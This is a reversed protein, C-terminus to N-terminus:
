SSGHPVRSPSDSARVDLAVREFPIGVLGYRLKTSQVNILVADHLWHHQIHVAPDGDAISVTMSYDGNPLMPLTFSFTAELVDGANAAHAVGEVFTNQGFLAQGLRDKVLFGIIPSALANHAKANITLRVREGGRFASLAEGAPGTLSVSTIQADGTSWGDSHVVNEFFDLRTQEDIAVPSAHGAGDKLAHAIREEGM